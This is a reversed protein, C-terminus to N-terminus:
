PTEAFQGYITWVNAATRKLTVASYREEIQYEIISARGNLAVGVSPNLNVQGVGAWEIEIKTGEPWAVASQLPVDIVVPDASDVRIYKGADALTLTHNATYTVVSGDPTNDAGILVRATTAVTVEAAPFGREIRLQNALNVATTSM